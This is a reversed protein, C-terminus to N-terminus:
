FYGILSQIMPKLAASLAANGADNPHIHDSTYSQNMQMSGTGDITGSIVGALDVSYKVNALTETNMAIRLADTSGYPRVSTDSPLMTWVIREASSTKARLYGFRQKLLSISTSTLTSAQDNPTGNPCVVIDASLGANFFDDGFNMIYNSTAGAWGMNSYEVIPSNAYQSSLSECAPLIFGEGLYTGRGETISDGIGVVNVVEHDTIYRFGIIPCQSVASASAAFASQSTSSFNGNAKRLKVPRNIRSGWNTFSDTGNGMITIPNANYAVWTRMSLYGSSCDIPMWDSLQIKRRDVAAAATLTLTGVGSFTVSSWTASDSDADLMSAPSAVNAVLAPSSTTSGNYSNSFILQVARIDSVPLKTAFEFTNGSANLTFDGHRGQFIRCGINGRNKSRNSEWRGNKSEVNVNPTIDTIVRKSGSMASTASGLNDLTTEIIENKQEFAKTTAVTGVNVTYSYQVDKQYPGFSMSKSLGDYKADNILIDYNIVPGSATIDLRQGAKLIAM